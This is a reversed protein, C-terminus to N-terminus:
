RTKRLWEGEGAVDSEARLFTAKRADHCRFSVTIDLMSMNM